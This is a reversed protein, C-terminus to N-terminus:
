RAGSPDAGGHDGTQLSRQAINVGISNNQGTIANAVSRDPGRPSQRPTPTAGVRGVAVRIPFAGVPITAIVANTATDIVSVTTSGFNAVYVRTGGPSIAVGRPNAGVPITGIVTNTATDIVSVTNANFDTVYAPTRQRAATVIKPATRSVANAVYGAASPQSGPQAPAPSALM